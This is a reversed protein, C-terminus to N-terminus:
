SAGRALEYAREVGAALGSWDYRSAVSRGAEALSRATFEDELVGRIGGALARPQDPPVLVAAESAVARFGPLDSCVIPTGAAMAELLVIGFSEGGLGPACYINASRFV